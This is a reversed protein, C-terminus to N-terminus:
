QLLNQAFTQFNSTILTKYKDASKKLLGTVTQANVYTTNVITEM